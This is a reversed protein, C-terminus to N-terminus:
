LRLVLPLFIKKKTEEAVVTVTVPLAAPGLSTVQDSAVLTASIVHPGEPLLVHTAYTRIPWALAVTVTVAPSRKVGDVWLFWYGDTPIEFYTTEVTIPVTASMGSTVTFVANNQPSIIHIESAEVSVTVADVPGLPQSEPGVLEASIVHTGTMLDVRTSYAGVRDQTLKGDVWLNWDGSVFITFNETEVTVPVTASVGNTAGIRADDEPTVIRIGPEQYPKVIVVGQYLPNEYDYYTYTGETSLQRHYSDGTNLLGSDWGDSGSLDLLHVHSQSATSYTVTPTLSTSTHVEDGVNVWAIIAGPEVELVAPDFGAAGVTVTVDSSQDLLPALPVDYHVPEDTVVLDWSRYPQYGEKTVDLQYTGVPTFFSFYGDSATTQPNEQDYDEANWVSFFTTEEGADQTTVQAEYCAVTADAQATDSTLDFVTGEPDILVEGDSCRQILYCTVCLKIDGRVPRQPPTTFTGVFVHDGDPDTLTVLGVEPIELTVQANPDTCCVRVTVTYQTAPRLFVRWGTEDLRGNMDRPIIVHGLHDVFRLTLPSWSLTNDVIVLIIPSAQHQTGSVAVAQLTHNGNALTLPHAWHGSADATVTAVLAGDVHIEVSVGPQARGTITFTGTCLTGPMPFIIRPPLLPISLPFVARNNSVDIDGTGTIFVTNTFTTGAPTTLPVKARLAVMGSQAPHLTGVTYTYIHAGAVTPLPPFAFSHPRTPLNPDYVDVIRVNHTPAVGSNKYEVLWSLVWHAQGRRTLPVFEVHPFVRGYKFVVPDADGGPQEPDRYVYDETEGLRFAKAHGRGDGYALGTSTKFPKNSRQESLTFRLWAPQDIMDAPWPVPGSTTVYITHLGPGLKAVDVPFDIVIHEPAEQQECDVVDAWDGDRTADVWVNLFAFGDTEPLTVGPGISVVVPIRSYACHKFGLKRLDVGDDAGDLDAADVRPEINNRGDVDPGVDAEREFSVAPGLHLPLPHMHKPGREPPAIEFVTPFHGKVGAYATMATPSFHNSSDPADGLDHCIVHLFTANSGGEHLETGWMAKNILVQECRVDRSLKVKVWVEVRQGPAIDGDWVLVHGGSILTAVGQSAHASVGIVGSPLVDSIHVTETLTGKNALTLRYILQQGPIARATTLVEDSAEFVIHKDLVLEPRPPPTCDPIVTVSDRVETGDPRRLVAVNVIQPVDDSCFRLRVQFTVRLHAGPFLDGRWGVMKGDTYASLPIASSVIERVWPGGVLNLMSPLVDTMVVFAPATGGKHVLDITYTFVQGLKVQTLSATKTIEVTGPEGPPPPRHLYDETEGLGYLEPFSPGRGDALGSAAGTPAPQESLTFRVWALDHPANNLVLVTPVAYDQHGVINSTDVIHNQIVWEHAIRDNDPCLRVDEWDGDRNGDFWANLYLRGTQAAPNRSIRVKLTTERCHPLLIGPNLWGDDFHDNDANDKGLELINNVGDLDLLTDAEEEYSVRNGLWVQAADFHLPGSPQTIPTGGWVTPFRGLVGTLTYATNPMNHHNFTSDPADGLDSCLLYTRVENSAVPPKDPSMYLYAQNKIVWDCTPLEPDVKVNFALTETLTGPLDFTWKLMNHTPTFTVQGVSVTPTGVLSTGLPLVDTVLLGTAPTATHNAVKVLYPIEAGPPVLPPADSVKEITVEPPTWGEILYDETEGLGFSEPFDPGRGDSFNTGPIVPAPQDSLTFRIWAPADPADNLVLITPVQFDKAGSFSTTDIQFDHVIWEFATRRQDACLRNDGWVGNRNGDFWINLYMTPRVTATPWVNVRVTLQTEQCDLFDVNPNLWGDDDNDQDAVDQRRELINHVPDLDILVDAEEEYSVRDGLWIQTADFHLPGSPKGQPTDRWVTPFRGSVLPTLYATNTIGHHNFESDPADGLDSCIWRDTRVENSLIPPDGPAINYLHARNKIPPLNCIEQDPLVRVTLHLTPTVSPPPDLPVYWQMLNLRADFGTDGLNVAHTVYTTGEPISDTIIATVQGLSVLPTFTITYTIEDDPKVLPNLTEARKEFHIPPVEPKVIYDETEGLAYGDVPGRGDALGGADNLPAPQESLSFRIWYPVSPEAENMVLKTRVQIDKVGSIVSTDVIHDQVIWEFGTAQNCAHTDNWDGDRNGDYWVNLYLPEQFAQGAAVRVTLTVETCDQFLVDARNMWGDDYWDDNANDTGRNLINNIGDADPLIDAEEEFSVKDGLWVLSADWHIPGPPQGAPTGGWVTPFRGLVSPSFYATNPIGYHNYDSDPADGLDALVSPTEEAYVSGRLGSLGAILALLTLSTLCFLIWLQKRHRTSGPLHWLFLLPLNEFSM